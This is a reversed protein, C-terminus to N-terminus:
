IYCSAEKQSLIFHNQEIDNQQISFLFNNRAHKVTM